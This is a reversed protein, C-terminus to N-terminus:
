VLGKWFQLLSLPAHGCVISLVNLGLFVYNGSSIILFNTNIFSIQLFCLYIFTFLKSHTIVQLNFNSNQSHFYQRLITYFLSFHFSICILRGTHSTVYKVSSQSESFRHGTSIIHTALFSYTIYLAKAVHKVNSDPISLCMSM